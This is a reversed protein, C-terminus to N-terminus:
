HMVKETIGDKGEIPQNSDQSNNEPKNTDNTMRTSKSDSNNISFM